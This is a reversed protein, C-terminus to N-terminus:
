TYMVDSIFYIYVYTYRKAEHMINLYLIYMYMGTERLYHISVHDHHIKWSRHDGCRAREGQRSLVDVEESGGELGDIIVERGTRSLSQYAAYLRPLFM